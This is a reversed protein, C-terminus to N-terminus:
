ISENVQISLTINKTNWARDVTTATISYTWATSIWGRNLNFSSIYSWTTWLTIASTDWTVNTIKVPEEFNIAQNIPDWKTVQTFAKNTVSNNRDLTITAWWAAPSINWEADKTWVYVSKLNDSDSLTFSTPKTSVWSWSSASPATSSESVYRWTVWVNDSDSISLNINRENTYWPEATWWSSSKDSISISPTTPAQTDATSVEDITKTWNMYANKNAASVWTAKKVNTEIRVSWKTATIEFLVFTWWAQWLSIKYTQPVRLTEVNTIKLKTWSVSFHSAMDAPVVSVTWDLNNVWSELLLDWNGDVESWAPLVWKEVLVKLVQIKEEKYLHKINKLITFLPNSLLQTVDLVPRWKSEDVVQHWSTSAPTWFLLRIWLMFRWETEEWNRKMVSAEPWFAIPWKKYEYWTSIEVYDMTAKWYIHFLNNDNEWWVHDVWWQIVPSFTNDITWDYSSYSLWGSLNWKTHPDWNDWKAWILFEFNDAWRLNTIETYKKYYTATNEVVDKMDVNMKDWTKSYVFSWQLANIFKSVLYHEYWIWVNTTNMRIRKEYKEIISSLEAIWITLRWNKWINYTAIWIAKLADEWFDKIDISILSWWEWWVKALILWTDITLWDTHEFSSIWGHVELYLNPDDFLIYRWSAWSQSFNWDLKKWWTSKWKEDWISSDDISSLTWSYYQEELMRLIKSWEEANSALETVEAIPALSSYRIAKKWDITSIIYQEWSKLYRIVEMIKNYYKEESKTIGVEKIRSDISVWDLINSVRLNYWALLRSVKESFTLTEPTKIAETQNESDNKSTEWM